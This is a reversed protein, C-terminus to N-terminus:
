VHLDLPAVAYNQAMNNHCNKAAHSFLARSKNVIVVPLKGATPSPTTSLCAHVSACQEGLYLM